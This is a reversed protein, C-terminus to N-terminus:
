GEPLQACSGVGQLLDRLVSECPVSRSCGFHTQRRVHPQEPQGDRAPVLPQYCQKCTSYGLTKSDEMRGSEAKAVVVKDGHVWQHSVKIASAAATVPRGAAGPMFHPREEGEPLEAWARRVGEQILARALTMQLWTSYGLTSKDKSRYFEEFSGIHHSYFWKFLVGLNHIIKPFCATHPTETPSRKSTSATWSRMALTRSRMESMTPSAMVIRTYSRSVMRM